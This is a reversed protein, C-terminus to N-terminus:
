PTAVRSHASRPRVHGISTTRDGLGFGLDALRLKLNQPEIMIEASVDDLLQALVLALFCLEHLAADAARSTSSRISIRVGVDPTTWCSETWLTPPTM